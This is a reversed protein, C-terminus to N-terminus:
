GQGETRGNQAQVNRIRAQVQALRHLPCRISLRAPAMRGAEDAGIVELTATGLGLYRLARDITVHRHEGVLVRVRPAGQLGQQELDWGVAALVHHRAAALCTFHAMQCGTVFAFSCHSPLGLLELVWRGAVSELASTGPMPGALCANQDWTSVLWDAGISAPLAGGIVFGFFRGSGMAAIGPELVHALEDVVARADTPGEPVPGDLADRMEAFTRSAGVPRTELSELYDAAIKTGKAIRKPGGNVVKGLLMREIRAYADNEVIRLQDNLDQKKSKWLSEDMDGQGLFRGEVAAAPSRLAAQLETVLILPFDTAGPVTAALPRTVAKVFRAAVNAFRIEFRPVFPDLTAPSVTQRLVWDIPSYISDLMWLWSITSLAMTCYARLVNWLALGPMIRTFLGQPSDFSAPSFAASASLFM